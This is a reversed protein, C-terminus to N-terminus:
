VSRGFWDCQRRCRARCQCSGVSTSCGPSHMYGCRWSLILVAILVLCPILHMALAQVTRWFGAHEEFVDMAFLSLFAVFAISLARPAWYLTRKSLASM